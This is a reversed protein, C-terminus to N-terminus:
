DGTNRHGPPDSSDMYHSTSRLCAELRTIAPCRRSSRLLDPPDPKSPCRWSTKVYSLHPWSSALEIYFKMTPSTIMGDSASFVDNIDHTSHIWDGGTLSLLPGTKQAMSSYRCCVHRIHVFKLQHASMRKTGSM